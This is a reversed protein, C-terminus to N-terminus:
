FQSKKHHNQRRQRQQEMEAQRTRRVQSRNPELAFEPQERLKQSLRNALDHITPYQFLEVISLKQPLIESLKSHIRFMLLSHGGLDFFNDYIGVQNVRLIEEWIKALTKELSTTPAVLTTDLEPRTEDPHPLAKYDVKGNATLSIFDLKIFYAPVTNSPLKHTLYTRLESTTFHNDSVYYAALQQETQGEGEQYGIEQLIRKVADVDINDNLEELAAERTKHGMRVDWSYPLAYNHYGQKQTHVHIGVNNILCNTSRGTDSPRIWSVHKSLFTLMEDLEVDCYRYFDIVQVQEFIEDNQFVEVDLLQSAADNVRHYTKRAELVTQDIQGVDLDPQTFLEETLRTEFFQGRSLGTVICPIGKEYALKMSLTYITKFCGNCVNCHRKLSDVFIANMAPTSGFVHDVNLSQVVRRINAKAEESIYGNDLTFALVKLGMAVLQCLVYTSDKGGSLLMLCDYEGKKRQRAQEFIARLEDLNKFYEQSRHKYNEYARCFNCVGATDLSTGPYNSALGCRTCYTVAQQDPRPAQGVVSVVCAEIQPHSSLASEVEGLEIRTGRIKVQRDRRGLYQLQANATWRGLDGTRYLCDESHFPNDIFREATLKPRNLYGRALGPGGIFIEGVVGQPVLNLASDLLYIQAGAAPKGIPVSTEVDNEPDFRYIMCGVTAETPGYENYIEVKGSFAETVTRALATKLDDGGLILKKVRSARFNMDQITSLHAPTLKIIDVANEEIVRRLSLDIAGEKEAYIVVRGGSILPVFISTVTLDFSLPSFLPFAFQQDQCYQQKAWSAYNVLGPHPIAVGKPQGTSGSTYIIYALQDLKIEALPNKPSERSIETWDADLQVIQSHNDPLRDRLSAQTLLLPAQTDELIFAIREAPYIPEIPVYAGGAKLIGWIAVLMEVSRDICIAVLVESRVGRNQLYHALQNARANLERYTLQREEFVIAVADPTREVQAEFLQNICQDRPYDTQIDNWEVLLQYLEVQTLLPLDSVRQQPNTVIEELLTQYHGAMRSITAADFLDTNYKLAGSISSKGELIDLTLDFQGENGLLKVFDLKFGGFDAPIRIAEPDPAAWEYDLQQHQIQLVFLAQIIPSRSPDREPLLREVLLPFPYDQHAIAGLVTHRV